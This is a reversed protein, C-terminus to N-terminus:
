LKFTKCIIRANEVPTATATNVELDYIIDRHVLGYQGRALGIERDGRARERAELVDLPAFLGVFFVDCFSLLDRYAQVNQAELMVEDVILNNGQQAMAAVSYRMGRMVRELTPGTKIAITPKDDDHTTEFLLGDPHSLLKEPLMELFADMAVHLFTQYTITQLAKAISTKGVSGIGNLVIIKTRHEM